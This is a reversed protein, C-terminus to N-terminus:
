SIGPQKFTLPKMIAISRQLGMRRFQTEPSVSCSFRVVACQELSYIRNRNDRLQGEAVANTLTDVVAEHARDVEDLFILRRPEKRLLGPLYGDEDSGIFGLPAGILRHLDHRETFTFMNLLALNDESGFVAKALDRALETSRVPRAGPAQLGDEGEILFSGDPLATFDVGRESLFKAVSGRLVQQNFDNRM